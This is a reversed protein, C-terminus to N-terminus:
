VIDTDTRPEEAPAPEDRNIWTTFQVEGPVVEIFGGYAAPVRQTGAAMEKDALEVKTSFFEKNDELNDVCINMGPLMLTLADFLPFVLIDIFGLQCKAINTTERDMFMSVAIGAEKEKDGQQFFEWLCRATWDLYIHLAKSPNSIDCSHLVINCALDKDETPPEGNENLQLFDGAQIRSKFKNLEAFHSSMDTSLVCSLMLERCRVYVSDPAENFFNFEPGSHILRFATAVHHMELVAKDNYRVAIPHRTKVCFM